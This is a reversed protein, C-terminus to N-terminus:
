NQPKFQDYNKNEGKLLKQVSASYTNAIDGFCHAVAHPMSFRPMEKLGTSCGSFM